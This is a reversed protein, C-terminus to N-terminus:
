SPVRGERCLRLTGVKHVQTLVESFDEETPLGQLSPCFPESCTEAGMALGLIELCGAGPRVGEGLKIGSSPLHPSCVREPPLLLSLSQPLAQTHSSWVQCTRGSM